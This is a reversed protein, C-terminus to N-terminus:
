AESELQRIREKVVMEALDPIVEWAINRVVQDSMLEVVRRAIRDVQEDSLDRAIPLSPTDPALVPSPMPPEDAEASAEAAAASSWLPEEPASDAIPEDDEDSSPSAFPMDEPVASPVFNDPQVFPVASTSFADNDSPADLAIPEEAPQWSSVPQEEWPSPEPEAAPAPSSLQQLEDFSMKPFARTEGSFASPEPESAWPADAIAEPEPEPEPAPTPAPSSLQQLEDFSMKPFARTEGGGFPSAAPEDWPSEEAVPEAAQQPEPEPAAFAQTSQSAMQQMEEFSMRPFARTEGSFEDAPPPAGFPSEAEPEPEPMPPPPPPTPQFDDFSVKTFARTESSSEAPEDWPSPDPLAPPAPPAALQQMEEISMKTFARTESSFADAPPTDFPMETTAQPAPAAGFIDADHTFAESPTPFSGGSTTFPSPPEPAVPAFGGSTTTFPSPAPEPADTIVPTDDMWPSASPEPEAAVAPAPAAAASSQTAAAILEEVKHILSQSEFPKTVVADCGAKEARDPDFPEFTGTLLVVPINRFEPHSKVYECVEYGNKEPMIIDSLIIDPRMEALKQLAKAGNNVATVEYDGDSFTLEVVKQITISDDALLIKKPM